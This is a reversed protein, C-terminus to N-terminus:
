NSAALSAAGEMWDVMKSMCAIKFEEFKIEIEGALRSATQRLDKKQAALIVDAYGNRIMVTRIEPNARYNDSTWSRVDVISHKFTVFRKQLVVTGDGTRIVHHNLTWIGGMVVLATIVSGIMWNRKKM